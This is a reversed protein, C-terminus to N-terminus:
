ELGEFLATSLYREASSPLIVVINKGAMGPRKGYEVAGWLAAGSSIGVPMGELRAVKRAMEFANANSVRIIDDIVTRNLIDPVFGAGIGQIKHPGAAGGSLVPSDEPELAIMKVSPKRQKLIEGVGTITGGTGVGSIVADVKGDTDHWIEEATTRRHIEPNALNKFQQPMVSGPIQNLLEEARAIAGSMGRTAPTLELEAGLLRLMKRREISMSEPMTLILRYGKAAAVFALAIGTNGSTPEIVTAGPALKGAKELSDIMAYGIRDKVSSLPNFFECKGLLVAPCSEAATLKNLAVLPTAGITDVFSSYIKGRFESM